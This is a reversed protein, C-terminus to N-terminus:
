NAHCDLGFAVGDHHQKTMSALSPQSPFVTVPAHRFSSGSTPQHMGEDCQIFYCRYSHITETRLAVSLIIIDWEEYFRSAPEAPDTLKKGHTLIIDKKHGKVHSKLKPPYM